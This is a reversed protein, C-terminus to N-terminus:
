RDEDYNCAFTIRYEKILHGLKIQGLPDEDILKDQMQSWYDEQRFALCKGSTAELDCPLTRSKVMNRAKQWLPAPTGGLVVKAGGEKFPM